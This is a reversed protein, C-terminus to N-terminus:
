TGSLFKKKNGIKSIDASKEFAGTEVVLFPKVKNMYSSSNECLLRVLDENYTVLINIIYFKDDLSHHRWLLENSQWKKGKQDIKKGNVKTM